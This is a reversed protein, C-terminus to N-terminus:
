VDHYTTLQHLLLLQLLLIDTTNSYNSIIIQHQQLILLLPSLLRCTDMDVRGASATLFGCAAVAAQALRPLSCLDDLLQLVAITHAM